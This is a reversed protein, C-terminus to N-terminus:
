WPKVEPARQNERQQYQYKFKRRLLGGPDDPIRKLWQEAAMKEENNLNNAQPVAQGEKNNPTKEKKQEDQPKALADQQEKMKGEANEQAKKAKELSDQISQNEDKEKEKTGKDIAKNADDFQNGEKEKEKKKADETKDSSKDGEKQEKKDGKGSEKQSGGKESADKQQSSKDKEKSDQKNKDKKDKKDKNKQPKQKKKQEKQKKLLAEIKAKNEKADKLDPQIKLAEDYAKIAPKYQELQALTNGKNYFSDANKGNSFYSLAQQYSGQKYAAVGQTLPDTTLKEADQYRKEQLAKSAQQDPRQWLNDWVTAQAPQPFPMVFAILMLSLIWGRRFAIAAIPLLLLLLWPGNALWDQHDTDSDVSALSNNEGRLNLKMLQNIDYDNAQLEQYIGGGQEAIAKLTVEEMPVVIPKNGRMRISPVIGGSTTGISLVSTRYGQKALRQVAEIAEDKLAGDAVLLIDGYQIGAQKLAEGAQLLGLDARSGQSPMMQTTLSKLLASITQNDRTLPSVTYAEGAFVVLGTLGEKQQALLDEIKFRARQLRSPKIDKINMSHSLDLVIIRATDTQFLPVNKKEWVPNALAVVAILWGALLLWWMPHKPHNVTKRNIMKALLQPDIVKEWGSNSQRDRKLISILLLIPLVMLLWWPDTFHFHSLM